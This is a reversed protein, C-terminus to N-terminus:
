SNIMGGNFKRTRLRMENEMMDSGRGGVGEAEVGARSLKAETASDTRKELTEVESLGSNQYETNAM